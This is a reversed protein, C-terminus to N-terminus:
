CSRQSRNERYLVQRPSVSGVCLTFYFLLFEILNDIIYLHKQKINKPLKSSIKNDYLKIMIMHTVMKYHVQFYLHNSLM